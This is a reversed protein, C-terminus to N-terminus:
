TQMIEFFMKIKCGLVILVFTLLISMLFFSVIEFVVFKNSLYKREQNFNNIM